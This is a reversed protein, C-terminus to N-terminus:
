RFQAVEGPVETDTLVRRCIVPSLVNWPTCLRVTSPALVLNLTSASAILGTM